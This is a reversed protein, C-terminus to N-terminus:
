GWSGYGLKGDEGEGWFYVDGDMFFVMVYKGGFYVVVKKIVM